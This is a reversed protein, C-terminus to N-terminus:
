NTPRTTELRATRGLTDPHTDADIIVAPGPSSQFSTVQPALGQDGASLSQHPGHVHLWYEYLRRGGACATLAAEVAQLNTPDIGDARLKSAARNAWDTRLEALAKHIM